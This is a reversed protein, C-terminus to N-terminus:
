KLLAGAGAGAAKMESGEERASSRTEREDGQRREGEKTAFFFKGTYDQYGV